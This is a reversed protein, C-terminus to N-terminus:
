RIIVAKRLLCANLTGIFNLANLKKKKKNTLIRKPKMRM